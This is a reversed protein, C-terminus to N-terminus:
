NKNPLHLKTEFNEVSPIKWSRHLDLLWDRKTNKTKQYIATPHDPSWSRPTETQLVLEWNSPIPWDGKNKYSRSNSIYSFGNENLGHAAMEIWFEVFEHTMEQFSEVNIFLDFKFKPNNRLNWAPYIIVKSDELIEDGSLVLQIKESPFRSKLYEYSLAVSSPILDVMIYRALNNSQSLLLAETLRGYGGGIELVTIKKNELTCVESFIKDILLTDMVSGLDALLLEERSLQSLLSEIVEDKGNVINKIFNLYEFATGIRPLQMGESGLIDDLCLETINDNELSLGSLDLNVRHKWHGFNFIEIANSENFDQMIRSILKSNLKLNFLEKSGVKLFEKRDTPLKIGSLNELLSINNKSVRQVLLESLTM